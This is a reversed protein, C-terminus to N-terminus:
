KSERVIRYEFPHHQVIHAGKLEQQYRSEFWAVFEDMLATEYGGDEKNLLFVLEKHIAKLCGELTPTMTVGNTNPNTQWRDGTWWLWGKYDPQYVTM